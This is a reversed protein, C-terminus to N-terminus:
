NIRNLLTVITNLNSAIIPDGPEVESLSTAYGMDQLASLVENYQNATFAGGSVARTFRRSSEGKYERVENINNQLRNWDSALLNFVIGRAPAHGDSWDFEAPRNDQMTVTNDNGSSGYESSSNYIFVRVGYTGFGNWRPSFDIGEETQSGSTSADDTAGIGRWSTSGPPKIEIEYIAGSKVYSSDWTIDITKAGRATQEIKRISVSPLRDTTVTTPGLYTTTGDKVERVNVTHSTNPSLGTFTHSTGTYQDAETESTERCYLTYTANSDANSVTITITRATKSTSYTAM